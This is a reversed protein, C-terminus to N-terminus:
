AFTDVAGDPAIRVVGQRVRADTAAVGGIAFAESGRERRNGRGDDGRESGSFQGQTGAGVNAQGLQIGADSMMEKLRPLAAELAQRVEPQAATFNVTAHNNNVALVVQLPGLDPPNLTLSASQEGGSAMWVVKQGLANDWASSGVPPALRAEAPAQTAAVAASTQQLASALAAAPLPQQQAQQADAQERAAMTDSMMRAYGEDAKLPAAQAAAATLAEPAAHPTKDEVAGLIGTRPRAKPDAAGDALPADQTVVKADPKAADASAGVGHMLQMMLAAQSAGPIDALADKGDAADQTKDDASKADATKADGNKGAAQTGQTAPTADSAKGDDASKADTPKAGHANSGQSQASKQPSPSAQPMAPAPPASQALNQSLMQNFSPGKDQAASSSPSAPAAANALTGLTNLIGTLNM